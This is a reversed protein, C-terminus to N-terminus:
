LCINLVSLYIFYNRGACWEFSSQFTKKEMRNSWLNGFYQSLPITLCRVFLFCIIQKGVIKTLNASFLDLHRSFLMLTTPLWIFFDGPLHVFWGQQGLIVWMKGLADKLFKVSSPHCCTALASSNSVCSHIILTKWVTFPLAPGAVHSFPTWTTVTCPRYCSFHEQISPYVPKRDTLVVVRKKIWCSPNHIVSLWHIPIRLSM